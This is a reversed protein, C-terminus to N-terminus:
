CCRRRADASSPDPSQLILPTEHEQQQQQLSHRNRSQHIDVLENLADRVGQANERASTYAQHAIFSVCGEALTVNHAYGLDQKTQWLAITLQPRRREQHNRLRTLLDLTHRAPSSHDFVVIAIDAHRWYLDLLPAYREQGATDWLMVRDAGAVSTTVSMACMGITSEPRHAFPQGALARALSTKGAGVAGVLVVCVAM